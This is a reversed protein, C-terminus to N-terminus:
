ALLVEANGSLVCARAGEDPFSACVRELESKQEKWPSDTGFLIRDASHSAWVERVADDEGMGLSYSTEIYISTGSFVELAQRWTHWGGSHAAVIPISPFATHVTLIREPDARDDDRPFSIDRGAHFLLVLGAESVAEYIPWVARDDLTFDQFLAHLKIGRLGADAVRMVDGRVDDSEPHVSRFPVIRESRISCSWDVIPAAQKPATAISAIVSRGIGAADMSAVLGAITGDTCAQWAEPSGAELAAIAKAALHDPFAHTHFDTIM